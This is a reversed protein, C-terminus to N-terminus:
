SGSPQLNNLVDSSASQDNRNFPTIQLQTFLGSKIDIITQIKATAYQESFKNGPGPYKGILNPHMQLSTSDQLLVKNFFNFLSSDKLPVRIQKSILTSIMTKCFEVMPLGIRKAIAQKSVTMKTIVSTILAINTYSTQNQTFAICLSKLFTLPTLKRAARRIFGINRGVIQEDICHFHSEITKLLLFNSM